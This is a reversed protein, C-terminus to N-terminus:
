LNLNANKRILDITRKKIQRINEPTTNYTNCLRSMQFDSLHLNNGICNEMAYTNIIDRDRDKLALMTSMLSKKQESSIELKDISENLLEDSIDPIKTEDFIVNENYKNTQIKKFEFNAIRGLWAKMKADRLKENDNVEFKFGTKTLKGFAKIFTMQTIEEPWFSDIEFNNNRCVLSALKYIYNKYRNYFENQHSNLSRTNLNEHIGDVLSQLDFSQVKENYNPLVSEM